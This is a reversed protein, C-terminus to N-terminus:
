TRPRPQAATPSPSRTSPPCRPAAGPSPAVGTALVLIQEGDSLFRALNVTQQDAEAVITRVVAESQPGQVAVLSTQASEDTVTVDAGAVHQSTFEEARAVLAEALLPDDALRESQEVVTQALERSATGFLEWTLVEKEVLDSSDAHYAQTM